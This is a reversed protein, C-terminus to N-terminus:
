WPVAALGVAKADAAWATAAAAHHSAVGAEAMAGFEALASSSAAASEASYFKGPASQTFRKFTSASM